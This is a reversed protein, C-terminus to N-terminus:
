LITNHELSVYTAEMYLINLSMGMRRKKKKKKKTKKM